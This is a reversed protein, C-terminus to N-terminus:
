SIFQELKQILLNWDAGTVAGAALTVALKMSFDGAFKKIGALAKQMRSKKPEPSNIQEQISELDDKVSERDKNSVDTIGDISLIIKSLLENIGNIVISTNNTSVISGAGQANLTGYNNGINQVISPAAKKEEEEIVIMENSIADNIYDIMPKVADDLFEQIIDSWHNSSHPYNFAENSVSRKDESLIFIMYDYQAKLHCAEDEPINIRHWGTGEILFCQKFDFDVSDITNHIADYIFPTAEIYKMFRALSVDSDDRSSRLLNSSLRRFELSIKRLETYTIM